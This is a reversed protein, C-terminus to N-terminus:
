GRRKERGGTLKWDRGQFYKLKCIFHTQHKVSRSIFKFIPDFLDETTVLSLLDGRSM